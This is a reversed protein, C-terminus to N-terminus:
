QKRFSVLGQPSRSVTESRSLSSPVVNPIDSNSLFFCWACASWELVAVMRGFCGGFFLALGCIRGFVTHFLGFDYWFVTALFTVLKQALKNDDNRPNKLAKTQGFKPGCQESLKPNCKKAAIKVVGKRSPQLLHYGGVGRPGLRRCRQGQSPNM